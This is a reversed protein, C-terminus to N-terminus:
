EVSPSNLNNLTNNYQPIDNTPKTAIHRSAAPNVHASRVRARAVEVSSALAITIAKATTPREKDAIKM